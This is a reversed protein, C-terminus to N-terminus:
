WDGTWVRTDFLPTYGHLVLVCGVGIDKRMWEIAANIKFYWVKDVFNAVQPWRFIIFQYYHKSPETVM